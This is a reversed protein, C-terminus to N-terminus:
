TEQKKHLSDTTRVFSEKPIHRPRHLVSLSSSTAMDAQQWITEVFQVAAGLGGGGGGFKASIQVGGFKPTIEFM